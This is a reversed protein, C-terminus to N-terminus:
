RDTTLVPSKLTKTGLVKRKKVKEGKKRGGTEWV